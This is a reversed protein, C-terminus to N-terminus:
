LPNQYIPPGNYLPKVTITIDCKKIIVVVMMAILTMNIIMVMMMEIMMIMVLTMMNRIMMMDIIDDKYDNIGDVDCCQKGQCDTM